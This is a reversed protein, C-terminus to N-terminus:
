CKYTNIEGNIEAIDRELDRQVFRYTVNSIDTIPKTSNALFNSINTHEATTHELMEYLVELKICKM